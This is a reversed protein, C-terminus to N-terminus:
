GRLNEPHFVRLNRRLVEENRDLMGRVVQNLSIYWFGDKQFVGVAGREEAQDSYEHVRTDDTVVIVPMWPLVGEQWMRNVEGSFWIGNRDKGVKYDKDTLIADVSREALIDLAEEGNSATIVTYDALTDRYLNRLDSDDDVCLIIEDDAM